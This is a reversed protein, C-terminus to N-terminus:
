GGREHATEDLSFGMLSFLGSDFSGRGAVRVAAAGILRREAWVSSGETVRGRMNTYDGFSYVSQDTHDNAPLSILPHETSPWVEKAPSTDLVRCSKTGQRPWAGDRDTKTPM